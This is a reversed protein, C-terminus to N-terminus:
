KKTDGNTTYDVHIGSVAQFLSYCNVTPYCYRDSGDITSRYLAAQAVGCRRKRQIDIAMHRFLHLAVTGIM